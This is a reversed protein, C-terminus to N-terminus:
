NLNLGIITSFSISNITANTDTLSTDVKRIEVHLNKCKGETVQRKYVSFRAPIVVNRRQFVLDADYGIDIDSCEVSMGVKLPATGLSANLEGRVDFILEPHGYFEDWEDVYVPIDAQYGIVHTSNAAAYIPTFDNIDYNYKTGGIYIPDAASAAMATIGLMAALASRTFHKVM